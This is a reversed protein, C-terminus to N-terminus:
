GLHTAVATRLADIRNKIEPRMKHRQAEIEETSLVVKERIEHRDDFQEATFDIDGSELRNWYHHESFENAIFVQGLVLSGGLYEWAVFSSSECQGKAPNDPSWQDDASSNPGWGKRLAAAVDVPQPEAPQPEAPSRETM